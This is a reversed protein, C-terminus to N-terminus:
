LAEQLTLFHCHGTLQGLLQSLVLVLLVVNVLKEEVHQVLFCLIAGHVLLNLAADFDGVLDVDFDCNILKLLDGLVKARM